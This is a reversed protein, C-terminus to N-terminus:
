PNWIHHLFFPVPHLAVQTKIIMVPIEEVTSIKWTIHSYTVLLHTITIPLKGLVNCKATAVGTGSRM